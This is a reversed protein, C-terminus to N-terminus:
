LNNIKKEKTQKGANAIPEGSQSFIFPIEGQQGNIQNNGNESLFEGLRAHIAAIRNPISM